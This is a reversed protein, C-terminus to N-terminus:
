NGFAVWHITGVVGYSVTSETRTARAEFGENSVALIAVSYTKSTLLSSMELTAIVIPKSNFPTSFKLETVGEESSTFSGSLTKYPANTKLTADTTTMYKKLDARAQEDATNITVNDTEGLQAAFDYWTKYIQAFLDTTDIQQILGTVYGCLSTDGRTDTIDVQTLESVSAEVYIEALCLDYIGGERVIDPAVPASAPIGKIITPQIDRTSLNLRAVVRDIRPLSDGYEITLVDLGDSYGKHGKICCVGIALRVLMSGAHYVMMSNAPNAWVGDSVLDAFYEAWDAADYERDDNLSNFFCSRM